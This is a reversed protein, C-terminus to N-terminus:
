SRYGVSNIPKFKLCLGVIILLLSLWQSTSLPGLLGRIEDGRLAEVGFRLIGYSILYRILLKRKQTKSNLFYLGLLILGIAEILQTPHRYHDHMFIGWWLDTEKGFCCGALFCGIRGIGHGLSLAPIMPWIHKLTLSQIFIHFLLCFIVAGILGGYFVFGGGTWFSVNAVLDRHEAQTLLFLIKAGIWASVFIGWFLLHIKTPIKEVPILAFFIQYAVGWGIGMLLPYSYLIFDHNQYLIPLM